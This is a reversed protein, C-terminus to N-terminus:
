ETSFLRLSACNTPCTKGDLITTLCINTTQPLNFVISDGKCNSQQGNATWQYQISMSPPPTCLWFDVFVTYPGSPYNVINIYNGTDPMFEDMLVSSFQSCLESGPISLFTAGDETGFPKTQLTVDAGKTTEFGPLLNIEYSSQIVVNSTASGAPPSITSAFHIPGDRYVSGSTTIPNNTDLINGYTYKSGYNNLWSENDLWFLNYMLMYDLGTYDGIGGNTGNQSLPRIYKNTGEWGAVQNFDDIPFTTAPQFMPGQFPASELDNYCTALLDRDDDQSYLYHNLLAYIPMNYTTAYGQLDPFVDNGGDFHLFATNGVAAFCLTLSVTYDHKNPWNVKSMFFPTCWWRYEISSLYNVVPNVLGTWATLDNIIDSAGELLDVVCNGADGLYGGINNSGGADLPANCDDNNSEYNMYTAGNNIDVGLPNSLIHDAAYSFAYATGSLSGVAVLADSNPYTQQTGPYCGIYPSCSNVTFFNAIKTTYGQALNILNVPTSGPTPPTYYYVNQPLSSLCKNVLAFGMFLYAVQDQSPYTNSGITNENNSQDPNLTGVQSGSLDSSWAQYKAMLAPQNVNNLLNADVDDRLFFGNLNKPDSRDNTASLPYAIAECNEDMREYAKLACFLEYQTPAWNQNNDYLLKLETALVAIYWGLQSTGDGWNIHNTPIGTTADKQDYRWYCPISLGCGGFNGTSPTFTAPISGNYGMVLMDSILKQRYHWYKAQDLCSFYYQGHLHQNISCLLAMLFLTKRLM